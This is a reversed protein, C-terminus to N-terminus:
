CPGKLQRTLRNVSMSVDRADDIIDQVEIHVNSNEEHRRTVSVIFNVFAATLIASLGVVLFVVMM